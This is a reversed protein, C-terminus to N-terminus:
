CVNLCSVQLMLQTRCPVQYIQSPPNTCSSSFGPPDGDSLLVQLKMEIEKLQHFEEPDPTYGEGPALWGFVKEQPIVCPVCDEIGFATPNFASM